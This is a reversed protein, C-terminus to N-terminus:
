YPIDDDDIPEADLTEKAAEVLEEAASGLKGTTLWGHLLDATRGIAVVTDEHGVGAGILAVEVQTACNLATQRAGLSPDYANGGKSETSGPAQAGRGPAQAGEVIKLASLVYQTKDNYLVPDGFDDVKVAYAVKVTTGAGIEKWISDYCPVDIWTEGDKFALLAWPQGQNNGSKVVLPNGNKDTTKVRVKGEYIRTEPM